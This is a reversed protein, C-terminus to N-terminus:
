PSGLVRNWRGLCFKARVRAAPLCRPVGKMQAGHNTTSLLPDQSETAKSAPAPLGSDREAGATLNDRGKSIERLPSLGAEGRLVSQPLHLPFLEPREQGDLGRLPARQTKAGAPPKLEAQCPLAPRLSKTTM